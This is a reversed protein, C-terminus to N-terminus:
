VAESGSNSVKVATGYAYLESAGSTVSSTTFRVNVIANAGLQEAQAIMRTLAEQRSETLLETYGKLEGGALNKLGAMIDRGVNKARVTNGQVLGLLETIEYGAVTETNTVIM